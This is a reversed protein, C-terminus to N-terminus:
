AGVFVRTLPRTGERDEWLVWSPRPPCSQVRSGQGPLTAMGQPAAGHTVQDFPCLHGAAWGVRPGQHAGKPGTCPSHGCCPAGAGGLRDSPCGGVGQVGVWWLTSPLCPGAPLHPQTLTPHVQSHPLGGPLLWSHHHGKGWRLMGGVESPACLQHEDDGMPPPCGARGAQAKPVQCELPASSLAPTSRLSLVWLAAWPREARSTDRPAM